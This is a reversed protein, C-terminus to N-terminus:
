AACEFVSRHQEATCARSATCSLSLSLSTCTWGTCNSHLAHLIYGCVCIARKPTLKSNVHPRVDPHHWELKSHSPWPFYASCHLFKPARFRTTSHRCSLLRVSRDRMRADCHSRPHRAYTNRSAPTSFISRARRHNYIARWRTVCAPAVAPASASLEESATIRNAGDCRCTGHRHEGGM